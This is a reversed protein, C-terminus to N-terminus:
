MDQVYAYSCTDHGPNTCPIFVQLAPHVESLRPWPNSIQSRSGGPSHDQINHFYRYKRYKLNGCRYPQLNFEEPIHRRLTNISLPKRVNWLFLWSGGELVNYGLFPPSCLSQLPPLLNRWFTSLWKGISSDDCGLLGLEEYLHKKYYMSIHSVTLHIETSVYNKILLLRTLLILFKFWSNCVLLLFMRGQTWRKWFTIDANRVVTKWLM